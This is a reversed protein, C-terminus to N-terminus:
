AREGDYFEEKFSRIGGVVSKNSWIALYSQAESSLVVVTCYHLVERRAASPAIKAKFRMVGAANLPYRIGEALNPCENFEEYPM